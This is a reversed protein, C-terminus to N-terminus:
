RKYGPPIREDLNNYQQLTPKHPDLERADNLGGEESLKQLRPLWDIWRDINRIGPARIGLKELEHILLKAMTVTKTGMRTESLTKVGENEACLRESLDAIDPALARFRAKDTRLLGRLRFKIDAGFLTISLFVIFMAIAMWFAAQNVAPTILRAMDEAGLLKAWAALNSQADEPSSGAAVAVLFSLISGTSSAIKLM